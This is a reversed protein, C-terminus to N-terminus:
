PGALLRLLLASAIILLLSSKRDSAHGEVFVETKRTELLPVESDPDLQVTAECRVNIKDGAIHDPELELRLSSTVSYLGHQEFVIEADPKVQM